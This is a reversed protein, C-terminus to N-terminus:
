RSAAEALLIDMYDALSALFLLDQEKEPKSLEVTSIVILAAKRGSTTAPLNNMVRVSEVRRVATLNLFEM